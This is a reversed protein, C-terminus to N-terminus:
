LDDNKLFEKEIEDAQIAVANLVTVLESQDADASLVITFLALVQGDKNIVQWGGVKYKANRELLENAVTASLQGSGKLGVSWVERIEVGAFTDTQSNIFVLQTRDNELGFILKYDGDDDIEYKMDEADLIAGVRSDGKKKGGFM